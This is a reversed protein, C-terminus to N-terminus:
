VRRALTQISLEPSSDVLPFRLLSHIFDLSAKNICHQYYSVYEKILMEEIFFVCENSACNFFQVVKAVAFLFPVM